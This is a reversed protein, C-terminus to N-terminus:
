EEVVKQEHEEAGYPPPVDTVVRVGEQKLEEALRRRTDRLRGETHALFVTFSGRRCEEEEQRQRQEILPKFARLTLVLEGFLERFQADFQPGRPSPASLPQDDHLKFGEMGALEAPLEERPIEQLRVNFLRSRPGITLGYPEGQAKRYFQDLERRCYDRALYARSVLALFIA